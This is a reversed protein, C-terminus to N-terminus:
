AEVIMFGAGRLTECAKTLNVAKVLIYDTDFTSIAFLSVKAEALPGAISSLIGTLGFDLPGQVKLMRWDRESKIDEPVCAQVCVVSLEDKTKTVSLFQSAAIWTPIAAEPALRCVSYIETLLELTM